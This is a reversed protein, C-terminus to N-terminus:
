FIIPLASITALVTLFMGVGTAVKVFENGCIMKDAVLLSLKWGIALWAVYLAPILFSGKVIACMGIFCVVPIVWPKATVHINPQM